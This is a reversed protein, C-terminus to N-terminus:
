SYLIGVVVLLYLLITAMLAKDTLLINEPNGGEQNQYVLALYRFVGFLVLPITLWLNRTQFRAVTEPSLTYLSYSLVTGATVVSVMQDLLGLDYQTLVRRHGDPQKGLLLMESRRKGLALFLSLFITCLLLWSSIPVNIVQAGAYVRLFFGSAIAFVDLLFMQRLFLSYTIQVALYGIAVLAFNLNVLLAAGLSALVLLVMATKAAGLRLLGSAIPRKSKVPHRRDEERDSIDNFLYVSGSLFCFIIFAAVATLLVEPDFLNKSFLLAPFIFLNKIWQKPRLSLLILYLSAIM